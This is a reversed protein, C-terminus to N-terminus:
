GRQYARQTFIHNLVTQYGLMGIALVIASFAFWSQDNLMEIAIGLFLLISVPILSQFHDKSTAATVGTFFDANDADQRARKMTAQTIWAMAGFLVSLIVFWLGITAPGLIGIQIFELIGVFFPFMSDTTTPLWSLRLVLNSYTLWILLIGMLTAIIQLWGLVSAFTLEYLYAQENIHTWLLELAFAQVISLLTLLVTPFHLKARRSTQNESM